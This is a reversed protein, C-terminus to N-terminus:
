AFGRCASTSGASSGTAPRLPWSTAQRSEASRRASSQFSICADHAAFGGEELDVVEDLVERDRAADDELLLDARHLRDVADRELEAAALGEAEDALGAAPLARDGAEHDPEEVRGRARDLEVALLDGVRLAGLQLRHAALHLDDELVRVGREVRAEADARDDGLRERDVLEVLAVDLPAARDLLQHLLDAQVGLVVVAVRVLEGPPWRWRIPTARASARFGFSIM